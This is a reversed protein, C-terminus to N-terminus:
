TRPTWEKCYKEINYLSKAIGLFLKNKNTKKEKLSVYRNKEIDLERIKYETKVVSNIMRKVFM